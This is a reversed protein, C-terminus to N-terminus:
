WEDKDIKRSEEVAEEYASAEEDTIVGALELIRPPENTSKGEEDSGATNNERIGRLVEEVIKLREALSFKNILAILENTSVM